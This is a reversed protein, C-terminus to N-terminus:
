LVLTNKLREAATRDARPLQAGAVIKVSVRINQLVSEPERKMLVTYGEFYLVYYPSQRILHVM